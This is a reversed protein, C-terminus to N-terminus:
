NSCVIGVAKNQYISYDVASISEKFEKEKVIMGM